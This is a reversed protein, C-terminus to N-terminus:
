SPIPRPAGAAVAAFQHELLRVVYKGLVDAELNVPDGVEAQALSTHSFTFPVIQVAVRGTGLAAITLSIGDVAVSGRAIVLPELVAPIEIELWHSDGDQRLTAIRGTADVHGLVFHGGLRADSRLPRELNVVRGPGLRGLTTVECTIPSIDASFVDADQQTVTLCVGNVAVSDGSRLEAAMPTRVRIRGGQPTSELSEIRGTAEILGTFM